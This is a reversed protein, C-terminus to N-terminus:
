FAFGECQIDHSIGSVPDIFRLRQAMLKLPAAFNDPGRDLLNPYFRDNLLPM